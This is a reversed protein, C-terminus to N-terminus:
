GEGASPTPPPIRFMAAIAARARGMYRYKWSAPKHSFEPQRGNWEEDVLAQAVREVDAETPFTPPTTLASALNGILIEGDGTIIWRGHRDQETWDVVQQAAERLAQERATSPALTAEAALARREFEMGRKWHADAQALWDEAARKWGDREKESEALAAALAVIRDIACRITGSWAPTANAATGLAALLRQHEFETEATLIPSPTPNTM